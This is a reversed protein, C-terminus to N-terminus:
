WCRGQPKPISKMDIVQERCVSFPDCNYSLDALFLFILNKSRACDGGDSFGNTDYYNFDCTCKNDIRYANSNACVYPIYSCSKGLVKGSVFVVLSIFIKTFM